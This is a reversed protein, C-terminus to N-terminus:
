VSHRKESEKKVNEIMGGVVRDMAEPDAKFYFMENFCLHTTGDPNKRLNHIGAYDKGGANGIYSFLEPKKYEVVEEDVEWHEGTGPDEMEWHSKMGKGQKIDSTITVKNVCEELEVFLKIDELVEFVTEIPANIVAEKTILLDDPSKREPSKADKMPM